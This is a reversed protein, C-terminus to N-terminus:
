SDLEDKRTRRIIEIRTTRVRNMRASLLGGETITSLSMLLLFFFTIITKHIPLNNTPINFRTVFYWTSFETDKRVQTKEFLRRVQNDITRFTRNRAMAIEKKTHGTAYLDAVMREAPPLDNYTISTNM